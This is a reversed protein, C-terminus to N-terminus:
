SVLEDGGCWCSCCLCSRRDDAQTLVQREASDLQGSSGGMTALRFAEAMTLPLYAPHGNSAVDGNCNEQQQHHNQQRQQQQHQRHGHQIACMNSADVAHRMSALM